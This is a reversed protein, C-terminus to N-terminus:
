TPNRGRQHTALQYELETVRTEADTARRRWIEAEGQSAAIKREFNEMMKRDRDVGISRLTAVAAVIASFAGAIIGIGALTVTALPAM